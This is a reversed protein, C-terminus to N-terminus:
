YDDTTLKRVEIIEDDRLCMRQRFKDMDSKYIGKPMFEVMRPDSIYKFAYGGHGQVADFLLQAKKPGVLFAM